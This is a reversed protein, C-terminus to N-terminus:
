NAKRAHFVVYAGQRDLRLDGFGAGNLCERLDEFSGVTAFQDTRQFKAIAAASLASGGTIVVTGRLEGGARLVRAMEAAAAAPDPFCHLGNYSVCVDFASDPFPMRAVDTQVYEIGTIGRRAAEVEAQELMFPSIDAAVYGTVKMGEIGRFAVGCGCPVDLVRSGVALDALGAIDAYFPRVDAGWVVRSLLRFLRPRRITYNYIRQSPKGSSWRRAVKDNAVAM